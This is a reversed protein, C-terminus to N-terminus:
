AREGAHEPFLGQPRVALLGLVAAYLLGEAVPYSLIAAVGVEFLAITMAGAVAGALRGWGGLTAAVYAKLMLTLGDEPMVFYQNALLFGAAGALAASLAFALAAMGAVDIGLAEAMEPDEASARLRRGPRTNVLFIRVALVLLLAAAIVALSQRSAVVSGLQLAGSGFLPPGGRPAAGFWANLANRIALGLAITAIFIAAPPRGKLPFYALGAVALGLAAMVALVLPLLLIGPIPLLSGLAVAAFGGAVVLDGHAFNVARTANLVLVFGLAVLAYASGLALANLLLQAILMPATSM